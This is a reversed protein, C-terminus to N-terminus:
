QLNPTLVVHELLEPRPRRAITIHTEFLTEAHPDDVLVLCGMVFARIIRRPAGGFVARPTTPRNNSLKPTSADRVARAAPITRFIGLAPVTVNRVKVTPLSAICNGSSSGPRCISPSGSKGSRGSTFPPCGRARAPEEPGVRSWMAGDDESQPPRNM